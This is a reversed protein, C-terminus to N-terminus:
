TGMNPSSSTGQPTPHTHTSLNVGGVLKRATIEGDAEIKGTTKIDGDVEVSGKIKVRDENLHFYFDGDEHGILLGDKSFDNPANWGKKAIGFLVSANETSFHRGSIDDSMGQLSKQISHTAFTVWVLDGKKYKPRIYYGGAYLFQVPVDPLVKFNSSTTKGSETFKLLPKVDARMTSTNHTKIEGICGIIIDGMKRDIMGTFFQKLEAIM